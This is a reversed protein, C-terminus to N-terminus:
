EMNADVRFRIHLFVNPFGIQKMSLRAHTGNEVHPPVKLQFEKERTVKGTGRCDPCFRNKGFLSSECRPCSESLPLRITYEGGRAAEAQSLVVEYFLDQTQQDGSGFLPSPGTLIDDFFNDVGTFMRDVRNFFSGGESDPKRKDYSRNYVRDYARSRSSDRPKRDPMLKKDYERKKRDDSLTEYAESIKQFREPGDSGGSADPHHQKAKKRYAEKIQNKDAKKSIGLIVYYDEPMITVQRINRNM